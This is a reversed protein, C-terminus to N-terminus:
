LSNTDRRLQSRLPIVPGNGHTIILENDASLLPLLASAATRALDRQEAVTGLGQDPHIANGGVAVLIRKKTSM